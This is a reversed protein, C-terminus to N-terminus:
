RGAILAPRGEPPAAHTPALKNELRHSRGGNRGLMRGRKHSGLERPKDGRSVTAGGVGCLVSGKLWSLLGIFRLIERRNRGV